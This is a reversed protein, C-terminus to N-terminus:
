RKVGAAYIHADWSDYKIRTGSKVKRSDHQCQNEEAVM